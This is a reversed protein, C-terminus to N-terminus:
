QKEVRFYDMDAVGNGSSYNLIFLPRIFKVDKYMKGPSSLPYPGCGSGNGSSLGSTYGVLTQWGSGAAYTQSCAAQYHQSSYSDNGSYNLKTIGNSAIGAWGCYVYKDSTTPSTPDSVQRVRCSIKYTSGPNFLINEQWIYWVYGNARLFTTGDSDVGVSAVGSGSTRYWISELTNDTSTEAFTKFEFSWPATTLDPGVEYKTFDDGGDTSVRDSTGGVSYKISELKTNIEWRNNATSYSLAYFYNGTANNTPDIPLTSIPSGGPTSQINLPFWGNGDTLRYSIQPKCAYSWGSPLPSLSSTIGSCAPNSDPLSIYVTNNQLSSFDGSITQYLIITKNLNELDQIRQSDRAQALLEGPNLVVVVVSALTALIAIVILLEVLTFARKTFIGIAM